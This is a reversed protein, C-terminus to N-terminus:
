LINPFKFLLKNKSKIYYNKYYDTFLGNTTSIKNTIQKCVQRKPTWKNYIPNYSLTMDIVLNNKYRLGKILDEKNKFRDFFHKFYINFGFARHHDLSAFLPNVNNQSNKINLFISDFCIYDLNKNKIKPIENWYKTFGNLRYVDDEMVVLPFKENEKNEFIKVLLKLHSLSASDFAKFHKINLFDKWENKIFNLNRKKSELSICYANLKFNIKPTFKERELDNIIKM